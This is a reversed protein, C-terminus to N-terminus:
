SGRESCSFVQRQGLNEARRKAFDRADPWSSSFMWVENDKATSNREWMCLRALWDWVVFGGFM